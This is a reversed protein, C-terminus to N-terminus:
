LRGKDLMANSSSIRLRPAVSRVAIPAVVHGVVEPGAEAVPGSLNRAKWAVHRFHGQGMDDVVPHLGGVPAAVQEVLAAPHHLCPGVIHAPPRSYREVLM